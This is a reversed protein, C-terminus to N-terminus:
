NSLTDMGGVATLSRRIMFRAWSSCDCASDKKWRDEGSKSNPQSESGAWRLTNPKICCCGCSALSPIRSRCIPCIIISIRPPLRIWGAQITGPPTFSGSVSSFRAAISLIIGSPIVM